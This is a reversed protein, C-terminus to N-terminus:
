GRKTYRISMQPERKGGDVRVIEFTRTRADVFTTVHECREPKGDRGLGDAQATFVKGDKSFRGDAYTTMPGGTSDVWVGAFSARAEDFGTLGKGQFPMGMFEGEFNSTLWRGGCEVRCTEVGNWTQGMMSVEADWTGVWADLRALEKPLPPLAPAADQSPPSSAGLLLFASVLAGCLLVQMM